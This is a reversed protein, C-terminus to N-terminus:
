LYIVDGSAGVHDTSPKTPARQIRSWFIPCFLFSQHSLNKILKFLTLFCVISGFTIYFPNLTDLFSGLYVLYRDFRVM